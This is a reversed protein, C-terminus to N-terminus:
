NFKVSLTLLHQIQQIPPNKPNNKNVSNTTFQAPFKEKYNVKIRQLPNSEPYGISSSKNKLVSQIDKQLHQLQSQHRHQHQHQHQHQYQNHNYNQSISSNPSIPMTPMSPMSHNNPPIFKNQFLNNNFPSYPLNIPQTNIYHNNRNNSSSSSVFPSPAPIQSYSYSSSPQLPIYNHNNNFTNQQILQSHLQDYRSPTINVNRSSISPMSIRNFTDHNYLPSVISTTRCFDNPTPFHHNNDMRNSNNPNSSM